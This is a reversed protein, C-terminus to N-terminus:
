SMTALSTKPHWVDCQLWGRYMAVMPVKPIDLLFQLKPVKNINLLVAIHPIHRGIKKFHEIFGPETDENVICIILKVHHTDSMLILTEFDKVSNAEFLMTKM